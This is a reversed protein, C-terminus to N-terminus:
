LGHGILMENIEDPTRHAEYTRVIKLRAQSEEVTEDYEGALMDRIMAKYRRAIASDGRKPKVLQAVGVEREIRQETWNPRSKSRASQCLARFEPFTPPFKGDWKQCEGIAGGLEEVTFEGLAGSWSSIGQDNVGGYQSEWISGFFTSMRHWMAVMLQRRREDPLDRLPLHKEQKATVANPQRKEATPENKM